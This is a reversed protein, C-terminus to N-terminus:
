VPARHCRQSCTCWHAIAHTQHPDAEVPDNSGIHVTAVAISMIWSAETAMTEFYHTIEVYFVGFAKIIGFSLRFVFFASAFVFWGYGRDPADGRASPRKEMTVRNLCVMPTDSTDCTRTSTTKWIGSM